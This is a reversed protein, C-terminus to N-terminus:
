DEQERVIKIGVAEQIMQDLTPRDTKTGWIDDVQVVYPPESLLRHATLEAEIMMGVKNSVLLVRCDNRALVQRFAALATERDDAKSGQIGAFRFGLITNEDAIIHFSMPRAL